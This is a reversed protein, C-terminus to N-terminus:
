KLYSTIEFRIAIYKVPKGNTGLVPSIASDVWYYSGDKKRNKIVGTWVKGATITKWLRRWFAANHEDSKLINHNSGILEDRSYGSIECFKDNAYTITGKLDTEAVIASKNLAQREAELHRQHEIMAAAADRQESIDEITLVMSGSGDPNDIPSTHISLTSKYKDNLEFVSHGEEFIRALRRPATNKGLVAICFLDGICEGYTKVLEDNMFQIRLHHDLIVLGLPMNKIIRSLVQEGFSKRECPANLISGLPATNLHWVKANGIVDHHVVGKNEMVALYKSITHREFSLRKEIATITAGSAGYDSIAKSILKEINKKRTM